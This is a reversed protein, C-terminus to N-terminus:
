DVDNTLALQGKAQFLAEELAAIIKQQTGDKVHGTSLIGEANVSDRMWIVSGGESIEVKM